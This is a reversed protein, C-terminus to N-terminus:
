KIFNKASLLFLGKLISMFLSINHKTTPKVEKIINVTKIKNTLSIKYYKEERNITILIM